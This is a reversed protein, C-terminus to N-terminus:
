TSTTEVATTYQAIEQLVLHPMPALAQSSARSVALNLGFPGM